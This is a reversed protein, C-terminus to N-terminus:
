ADTDPKYLASVQLTINSSGHQNYLQSESTVPKLQFYFLDLDPNLFAFPDQDTSAGKNSNENLM